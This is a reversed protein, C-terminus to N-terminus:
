KKAISKSAVQKTQSVPKEIGNKAAALPKKEIPKKPEEQKAVQTPEAPTQVKSQEVYSPVYSPMPEDQKIPLALAYFKFVYGGFLLFHILLSLWLCHKQLIESHRRLM